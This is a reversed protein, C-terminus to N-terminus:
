PPPPSSWNLKEGAPPSARMVMDSLPCATRLHGTPLRARSRQVDLLRRTDVAASDQAQEPALFDPTGLVAGAATLRTAGEAPHLRALGFADEAASAEWGPV